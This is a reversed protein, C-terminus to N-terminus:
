LWGLAKSFSDLYFTFSTKAWNSALFSEVFSMRLVLTSPLIVNLDMVSWVRSHMTPWGRAHKVLPCSVSCVKPLQWLDLLEVASPWAQNTKLVRNRWLNTCIRSWLLPKQWQIKSFERDFACFETLEKLLGRADRFAKKGFVAFNFLQKFRQDECAKKMIRPEFKKTEFAEGLECEVLASQILGGVHDQSESCETLLVHLLGRWLHLPRPCMSPFTM